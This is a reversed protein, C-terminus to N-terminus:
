RWFPVYPYTEGNGGRIYLLYWYALAVAIIGVTAIKRLIKNDTFRPLQAVMIVNIVSFFMSVRSGYFLTRGLQLVILTLCANTQLYDFHQVNRRLNKAFLFVAIVEALYILNEMMNDSVSGGKFYYHYKDMLSLANLIYKLLMPSAVCVFIAGAIIPWKIWRGYKGQKWRCLLWHLVIFCVAGMAMTHMLAAALVYGLYRLYRGELLDQAGLFLLAMAFHQRMLNLSDNYFLLFYLALVMVMPAKKRLRYAGIFVSGYTVLGLVFLMCQVNGTLHALGYNMLNYMPEKAHEFSFVEKLSAGSLAYEFNPVVYYGVDTGVSYGRCGALLTPILIAAASLLIVQRHHTKYDLKSVFHAPILVAAFALLYIIM